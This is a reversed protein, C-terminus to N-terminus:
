AVKVEIFFVNRAAFVAHVPTFVHGVAELVVVPVCIALTSKTLFIPVRVVVFKKADDFVKVAVL